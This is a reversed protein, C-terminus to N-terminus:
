REYMIDDLYIVFGQPNDAKSASFYFGGIVNKLNANALSISYQRWEKTLTVPGIRRSDSDGYEGNIGGMRFESIVEGGNEGKAWFTLKTMVSLNYGGPKDGWNNLPQQWYLGAWGANSRMVADYAIKVCTTGSHPATTWASNMRMDAQDGQWGSPMFHNEKSNNDEYVFFTSATIKPIDKIGRTIQKGASFAVGAIVAGLSFLLIFRKMLPKRMKGEGYLYRL